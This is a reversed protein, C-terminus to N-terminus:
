AKRLSSWYKIIVRNSSQNFAAFYTRGLSIQHGYLVFVKQNTEVCLKGSKNQKITILSTPKTNFQLQNFAHDLLRISSLLCTSRSWTLRTRNHRCFSSFAVFVSSNSNARCINASSRKVEFQRVRVLRPSVAREVFDHRHIYTLDLLLTRM